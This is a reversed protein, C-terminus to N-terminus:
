PRGRVAAWIAELRGILYRERAWRKVPQAPYGGWAEGPPVSKTVGAGGAIRADDGVHLHDAVGAAGGVIVRDGITTSGAIGTQGAILVDHGIRVNHAIQVLNDVKTRDGITTAGLTARDVCANAGIEVDDGLVVTGLHRIREAGRPGAAYGFGDSGLVAGAQIRCRAGLRVGDGVVVREGLVSGPGVVAGAGVVAGPGVVVGDGLRAGAAVVAGPGIAVARGLTASPDLVATAHVGPPAVPPRADLRTSLRALALRPDAVRWVALDGGVGPPVSAETAVVVAAVGAARWRTWADPPPTPAVVAADPAPDEPDALRRVPRDPGSCAAGLLAAAEAALLPPVDTV